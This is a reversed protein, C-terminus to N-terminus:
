EDSSKNNEVYEALAYALLQTIDIVARADDMSDIEQISFLLNTLMSTVDCMNEFEIQLVIREQSM